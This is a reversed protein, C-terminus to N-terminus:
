YRVNERRWSTNARTLRKDLDSGIEAVIGKGAQNFFLCFYKKPIEEYPLVSGQRLPESSLPAGPESLIKHLEDKNIERIGGGDIEPLCGTRDYRGAAVKYRSGLSVSHAYGVHNTNSDVPRNHYFHVAKGPLRYAHFRDKVANCVHYFSRDEGGWSDFREDYGGSKKWLEVPVCIAGGSLHNWKGGIFNQDIIGTLAKATAPERMYYYDSFAVVLCGTIKAMYAAAWINKSEVLVDTDFIFVVEASENEQIAKNIAANRAAARNFLNGTSTGYYIPFGEKRYKADIYSFSVERNIESPSYAACGVLNIKGKASVGVFDVYEEPTKIIRLVDIFAKSSDTGIKDISFGTNDYVLNLVKDM